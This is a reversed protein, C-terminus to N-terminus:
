LYTRIKNMDRSLFCMKYSIKQFLDFQQIDGITIKITHICGDVYKGLQEVENNNDNTDLGLCKVRLTIIKDSLTKNGKSVTIKMDLIIGLLQIIRDIPLYGFADIFQNTFYIEKELQAVHKYFRKFHNMQFMQHIASKTNNLQLSPKDYLCDMSFINKTFTNKHMLNYLIRHVLIDSYRRIPSTFHTYLNLNLSAHSNLNPLSSNYYRIEASKTHLKIHETLLSNMFDSEYHKHIDELEKSATKDSLTYTSVQQSRIIIPMDNTSSLKVMEEAVKCNALIMFVEIMKKASYITTKNPDLYDVYFDHGIDYMLKMNKIKDFSYTNLSYTNKSTIPLHDITDINDVIAQFKDYSLNDNIKITTKTIIYNTIRWVGDILNLRIVVSFARKASDTKLSFLNTSLEKPFMHYTTDRLYVSEARNSVEKDLESGEILYSSPDAIHIGIEISDVNTSDISPLLEISIADDIDESGVPDVSIIYMHKRNSMDHRDPTLDNDAIGISNWTMKDIKRNWHCTSIIQCLTNEANTNGVDGIYRDITGILSRKNSLKDISQTIKVIVYKDVYDRIKNTKVMFPPFLDFVPIFEKMIYGSKCSPNTKFSKSSLKLVGPVITIHLNGRTDLSYLPINEQDHQNNNQNDHQEDPQYDIMFDTFKHHFYIKNNIPKLNTTM